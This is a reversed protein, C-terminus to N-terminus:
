FLPHNSSRVLGTRVKARFLNELISLSWEGIRWEPPLPPDKVLMFQLCIYRTM